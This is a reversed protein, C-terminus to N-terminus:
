KPKPAYRDWEEQWLREQLHMLDVSLDPAIGHNWLVAAARGIALRQRWRKPHRFCIWIRKLLPPEKKM